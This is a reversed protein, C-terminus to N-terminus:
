WIEDGIPNDWDIDLSEYNGDFGKFLDLINKRSDIKEILIKNDEIKLELEDNENIDLEDLVVKPIRIGQSNGWKQLKVTM